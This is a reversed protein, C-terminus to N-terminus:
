PGDGMGDASGRGRTLNDFHPQNREWKRGQGVRSQEPRWRGIREEKGKGSAGGEAAM